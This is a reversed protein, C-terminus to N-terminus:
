LSLLIVHISTLTFFLALSVTKDCIHREAFFPTENSNIIKSDSKLIFRACLKATMEVEQVRM